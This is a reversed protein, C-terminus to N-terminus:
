SVACANSKSKGGRKGGAVLHSGSVTHRGSPPLTASRGEDIYSIKPRRNEYYYEGSEDSSSSGSWSDDDYGPNINDKMNGMSRSAPLSTNTSVLPACNINTLSTTEPPRRSVANPPRRLPATNPPDQLPTTGIPRGSTTSPRMDPARRNSTTVPPVGRQQAMDHNVPFTIVNNLKNPPPRKIPNMKEHTQPAMLERNVKDIYTERKRHPYSPRTNRPDSRTHDTTVHNPVSGYQHGYMNFQVDEGVSMKDQPKYLMGPKVPDSSLHMEKLSSGVSNLSTLSSRAYPAQGVIDLTRSDILVTPAHVAEHHVVTNVGPPQIAAGTSDHYIPASAGDSHIETMSVNTNPQVRSVADRARNGMAVHGNVTAMAIPHYNIRSDLTSDYHDPRSDITDGEVRSENHYGNHRKDPLNDYNGGTVRSDYNDRRSDVNYKDSTANHISKRNNQGIDKYMTPLHNYDMYNTNHSTNSSIKHSESDIDDTSRKNQSSDSVRLMSRGQSCESSCYIVGHKPLFPEGLLSRQCSHCCFCKETAHWHQGEHTMQGEDVGISEGCTDCFEAYKTEFCSTCFPRGEKMIYRQGGLQCDCELCCFHKMHWSRGEAETCEDAFIIEDCAACRPKLTEAHHRGCYIHGERYFYILDVLLESCTFCVFCAPHWCVDHGGRSAFVAIEGSSIGKACHKCVSGQMTLPLPRVSGRGLAEKKRQSSFLRLEHREAESLSNCYRIENDHPPLQQLLQKIRYKEGLSNIYPVKSDPLSNMYQHVQEPKLGPPVWTYEELACGSDDDSASNRQFDHIIKNVNREQDMGGFEHAERPCKCHRCIKRWYHIQFGPCKDGCSMCPQGPTLSDQSSMRGQPLSGIGPPLASAGPSLSGIGPSHSQNSYM